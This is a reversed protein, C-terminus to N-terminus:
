KKFLQDTRNLQETMDSEKGDWPSCHVLSGQGDDIGPAQEFMYGDLQQHWGDMEDETMGKKEQRWYKGADPDKGILWNKM